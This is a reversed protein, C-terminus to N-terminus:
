NIRVQPFGKILECLQHARLEAAFNYVEKDNTLLPTRSDGSYLVLGIDTDSPCGKYAPIRRHYAPNLCFQRYLEKVSEVLVTSPLFPNVLFWTKRALSAIEQRLGQALRLRLAMSVSGALQLRQQVYGEDILKQLAQVAVIKDAEEWAKRTTTVYKKNYVLVNTIRTAKDTHPGRLVIPRGLADTDNFKFCLYIICNADYIVSPYRLLEHM